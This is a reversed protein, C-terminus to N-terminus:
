WTYRVTYNLLVEEGGKPVKVEFEVTRSDKKQFGEFNTSVVKWDGGWMHERVAVKVDEAKHNRLSIVYSYEWVNEAIKQTNAQKWEGVIDFANGLFVDVQEDKATHDTMDEGLFELAGDEDMKSVRVRGMPLPIGLNNGVSNIFKVNTRVKKGYLRGDYLYYKVVPVDKVTSFLSVQKTQNNKITTNRAIDYIHYEFLGREKTGAAYEPVKGSGDAPAQMDRQSRRVQGTFDVDGAVLKLKANKYTAGSTNRLTIWAGFDMKTDDGNLVAVYDTQWELGSTLYSVECAQKGGKDSAVEWVLTPKTILGDPLKPLRVGKVNENRTVIQLGGTEKDKIVISAADFSMLVGKLVGDSTVVEIEQDVYKGM